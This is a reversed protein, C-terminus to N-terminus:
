CFTLQRTENKGSKLLKDIGGIWEIMKPIKIFGFGKNYAKKIRRKKIVNNFKLINESKKKINEIKKTNIFMNKLYNSKDEKTLGKYKRLYDYNKYIHRCNLSIKKIEKEKNFIYENVIESKIDCCCRIWSLITEPLFVLENNVLGTKIYDIDFLSTNIKSTNEM